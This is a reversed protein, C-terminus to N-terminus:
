CRYCGSEEIAKGLEYSKTYTTLKTSTLEAVKNVDKEDIDDVEDLLELYVGSVKGHLNEKVKKLHEKLYCELIWDFCDKRIIVFSVALSEMNNLDIEYVGNAIGELLRYMTDFLKQMYEDNCTIDDFVFLFRYDEAIVLNNLRQFEEFEDTAIMFIDTNIVANNIHRLQEMGLAYDGNSSIFNHVGGSFDVQFETEKATHECLYKFIKYKTSNLLENQVVHYYLKYSNDFILMSTRHNTNVNKVFFLWDVDWHFEQIGNKNILRLSCIGYKTYCEEQRLDVTFDIEKDLSLLMSRKYYDTNIYDEIIEVLLKCMQESIIM